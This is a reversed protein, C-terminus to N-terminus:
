SRSLNKRLVGRGWAGRITQATKNRWQALCPSFLSNCVHFTCHQHGNHRHAEGQSRAAGIHGCARVLQFFMGPQRLPKRNSSFPCDRRLSRAFLLSRNPQDQGTFRIPFFRRLQHSYSGTSVADRVGGKGRPLLELQGQRHEIKKPLCSRVAQPGRRAEKTSTCLFGAAMQVSVRACETQRLNKRLVVTM